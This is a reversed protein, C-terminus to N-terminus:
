FKLYKKVSFMSGVAGLLIGYVVFVVSLRTMIMSAPALSGGLPLISLSTGMAGLLVYYINAMLLLSVVAGIIGLVAGEIVFPSSIYFNTAGIYRMIIIDNSRSYVTLKITNYIIMIAIVSMVILAIVSLGNMFKNFKILTEITEKGYVADKVGDYGLAFAAVDSLKDAAAVKVIFSDPIPSNEDSYGDLLYSSSALTNKFNNLAQSKSEYRVSVVNENSYLGLEISDKQADTAFDELYVKVELNNEINETIYNVNLTLMLIVGVIVLSCVVSFVSAVSMVSNRKISNFSDKFFTIITNMQKTSETESIM